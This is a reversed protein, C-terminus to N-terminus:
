ASDAIAHQRGLPAIQAGAIFAYDRRGNWRRERRPRTKLSAVRLKVESLLTNDSIFVYMTEKRCHQLYAIILVLIYRSLMADSKHGTQQRIKWSPIGHQAASTALGSTEGNIKSTRKLITPM